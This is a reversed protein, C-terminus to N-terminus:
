DAICFATFGHEEYGPASPGVEVVRRRREDQTMVQNGVWVAGVPIVCGAFAASMGLAVSFWFIKTRRGHRFAAAPIIALRVVVYLTLWEVLVNWIIQFPNGFRAILHM